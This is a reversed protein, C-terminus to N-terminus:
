ASGASGHASKITLAQAKANNVPASRKLETNKIFTFNDPLGSNFRPGRPGSGLASGDASSGTFFLGDGSSSRNKLIDPAVPSAKWECVEQKSM